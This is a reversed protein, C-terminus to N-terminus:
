KMAKEIEEIMSGEYVAKTQEVAGDFAPRIFPHAPTDGHSTQPGGKKGRRNAHGYEIAVALGYRRGEPAVVFGTKAGLLVAENGPVHIHQKISAALEGPELAGGSAYEGSRVPAHAKIANQMLTAAKKLAKRQMKPHDSLLSQFQARVGDFAKDGM